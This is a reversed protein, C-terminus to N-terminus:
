QSAFGPTIEPSGLLCSQFAEVEWGLGPPPPWPDGAPRAMDRHNGMRDSHTHPPAPSLPRQGILGRTGFQLRGRRCKGKEFPGWIGAVWLGLPASPAWAAPPEAGSGPPPACAPPPPTGPLRLRREVAAAAEGREGQPNESTALHYFRIQQSTVGLFSLQVSFFFEFELMKPSLPPCLAAPQPEGPRQLRSRGGPRLPCVQVQSHPPSVATRSLGGAHLTSPASPPAGRLVRRTHAVVVQLIARHVHGRNDGLPHERFSVSRLVSHCGPCHGLVSVQEGSGRGVPVQTPM